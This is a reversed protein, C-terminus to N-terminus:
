SSCSFTPYLYPFILSDLYGMKQLVNMVIIAMCLFIVFYVVFKGKKTCYFSHGKCHKHLKLIMLSPIIGLLVAVFIGAYELAIYFSKDYTFIFLIPPIFTLCVAFLRGKKTKKVRLGDSLFDSLSLSVGLFSTIIAFFAFLQAAVSIWRISTALALPITAPHGQKWSEILSPFPISGLVIWQWLLYIVLPIVSGILLTLRLKKVDHNMYTVLTPIIIHYGFSTIVIPIAWFSAVFDFHLLRSTEVFSPCSGILLIYSGILGMMFIRNIADVGKTGLYVFGGFLAPLIFPVFWKPFVVHFVSSFMKQFFPACGAIYAVLLAYLLLLYFFWSVAKGWAGLTKGAMSVLNSEGRIALNVELFFFSTTLMLIWCIFFILSSPIFGGFSTAIPLALMGAGIATGSVLLIGGFCRNNKKDM